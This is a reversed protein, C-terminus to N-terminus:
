EGLELRAVYEFDHATVYLPVRSFNMHKSARQMFHQFKAVVLLSSMYSADESAPDQFAKSAYVAQLPELGTITYDAFPGSQWDSLWDLDDLGGDNTYAFLDCYWRAPNIDFGNMETYVARVTRRESERLYFEDFHAAAEAPVNSIELETAIHFPTPPLSRLVDTVALECGALDGAHLQPTLREMTEFFLEIGM